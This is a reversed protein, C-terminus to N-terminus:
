IPFRIFIRKGNYLHYSMCQLHVDKGYFQLFGLLNLSNGIAKSHILISQSSFRIPNKGFTYLPIKSYPLRVSRIQILLYLFQSFLLQAFYFIPLNDLDFRKDRILECQVATPSNVFLQYQVVVFIPNIFLCIAM